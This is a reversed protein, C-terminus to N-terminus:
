CVSSYAADLNRSRLLQRRFSNLVRGIEVAIIERDRRVAVVFVLVDVAATPRPTRPRAISRARVAECGWRPYACAFSRRVCSRVNLSAVTAAFAKRAASRPRPQSQNAKSFLGTGPPQWLYSCDDVWRGRVFSRQRNVALSCKPWSYSCVWDSPHVRVNAAIPWLLLCVCLQNCAYQTSLYTPLYAPPTQNPPTPTHTNADPRISARTSLSPNIFLHISICEHFSLSSCSYIGKHTTPHNTPLPFFTRSLKQWSLCCIDVVSM